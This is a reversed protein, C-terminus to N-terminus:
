YKREVPVYRENGTTRVEDYDIEVGQRNHNWSVLTHKMWNKDDRNPYDERSHAGRSEKRELAAMVTGEALDILSRLEYVGLLDTNFM